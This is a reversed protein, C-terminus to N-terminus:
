RLAPVTASIGGPTLVYDACRAVQEESLGIWFEADLPGTIEERLFTGISKGAVRRVIGGYVPGASMSHYCPTSGPPWEPKQIELAHELVGPEWMSGEPAADAYPLGALQSLFCRVTIAEKGNQGFEPWYRAIPTDLDFQGRDALTIVCLAAIAKTVSMCTTITAREWTRSRDRDKYGGWLDVLPRGDIIVSVCAGIEHGDTFNSRFADEVKRFAPDCYGDMPINM